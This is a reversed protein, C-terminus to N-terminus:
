ALNWRRLKGRWGLRLLFLDSVDRNPCTAVGDFELVQKMVRTLFELVHRNSGMGHLSAM